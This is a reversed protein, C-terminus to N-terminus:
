CSRPWTACPKRVRTKAKEWTTGGSSRAGPALRRHVEPHPGAAGRARLAERRRSIAAGPVGQSGEAGRVGLQKLRRVRRHRSRRPVVLDGVKLDRFDSLFTKAVSTRREVAHREEDFVDREVYVQLGVDALRFGRSLAGV